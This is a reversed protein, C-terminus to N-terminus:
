SIIDGMSFSSGDGPLPKRYIPMDISVIELRKESGYSWQYNAHCDNKKSWAAIRANFDNIINQLDDAIQKKDSLHCADTSSVSTLVGGHVHTNGSVVTSGRVQTNGYVQANGYLKADDTVLAEGYVKADDTVLAGGCVKASGYVKANGFVLAYGYIQANGYVQAHGYVQANGSVWADGDHNLNSESEIWGGLAGDSLRELRQLKVGFVVKQEGTFKYKMKSM